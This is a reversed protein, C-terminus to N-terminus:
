CNCIVPKFGKKKNIDCFVRRTTFLHYRFHQYDLLNGLLVGACGERCPKGSSTNQRGIAAFSGNCAGADVLVQDWLRSHGRGFYSNTTKPCIELFQSTKLMGGSPTLAKVPKWEDSNHGKEWLVWHFDPPLSILLDPRRMCPRSETKVLGTDPALGLVGTLAGCYLVGLSTLKSLHLHM